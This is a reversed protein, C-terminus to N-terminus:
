WKLWKETYMETANFVSVCNTTCCNGDDIELVKEGDWFSVRHGNCLLEM